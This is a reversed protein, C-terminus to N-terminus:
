LLLKVMLFLPAIEFACIYLIFYFLKSFILNKNNLLLIIFRILFLLLCFGYLYNFSLNSYEFIVYVFFLLISINYLYSTKSVLFFRVQNKILFLLSLLYELFIKISLFSFLIIFTKFYTSFTNQKIETYDIIFRNFILALVAIVFFYILSYFSKFFVTKEAAEKEVFGKNFLSYSYGSLKSSNLGKLIFIIAFLVLLIITIWNNYPIIRELAQLNNENLLILM